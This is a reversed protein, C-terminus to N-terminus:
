PEWPLTDNLLKMLVGVGNGAGLTGDSREKILWTGGRGAGFEGDDRAVGASSSDVYKVTGTYTPPLQLDYYGKVRMGVKLDGLRM